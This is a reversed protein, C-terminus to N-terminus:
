KKQKQKQAEQQMRSLLQRVPGMDPRLQLAIQLHQVSEEAEGRKALATGLNAQAEALSPNSIVAARFETVAEDPHGTQSLTSGLDNHAEAYRPDIRLAAHYEEIAEPVGGPVEALANGLSNHAMASNPDLRLAIRYEAIADQMRGKIDSTFVGLNLHAEASNPNLRVAAQMHSMAEASRGPIRSLLVGLNTHAMWSEPNRTITDSYLAEPNAFVGCHNWSVLALLAVAVGPAVSFRQAVWSLAWGAPVAIGLSALYAYHDGVFSYVFPYLDFLGLVPLLTVCFFLFGAFPARTRKRLMWLAVGVAALGAPFLWQWAVRADITWRPYVFMLNVPWVLKAFYFAISRGALLVRGVLTLTLHSAQTGLARHEVWVAFVEAAVGVAVWPALPRLTRERDLRGHKWWLVAMLALPLTATVPKSLLAALFLALAILYDTRRRGKEFQLYVVAAALYFATSLANQQETIWAVSEVNVPHMAFLFAAPWAAAALDLRRLLMVLLFASTAHLLLNTLHYGLVDNGWLQFEVWFASHVLPAYEETTGPQFWIRGLGQWNQLEPRTLHAGDELIPGGNLAPLFAFLLLGLLLAALGLDRQSVWHLYRRRRAPRATKSERAAARSQKSM